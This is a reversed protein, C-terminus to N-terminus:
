STASTFPVAPYLDGPVPAFLQGCRACVYIQLHRERREIPMARTGFGSPEDRHRCFPCEIHKM